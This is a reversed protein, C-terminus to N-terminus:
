LLLKLNVVKMEWKKQLRREIKQNNFNIQCADDSLTYSFKLISVIMIIGALVSIELGKFPLTAFSAALGFFAALGLGCAACGPALIGLFMGISALFGNEYLIKGRLNIKYFILSFLIGTLFSLVIIMIFSSLLITSRFNVFLNFTFSIIKSLGQTRYFSLINGSTSIFLNLLYFLAGFVLALIVYKIKLFVHRLNIFSRKIKNLM